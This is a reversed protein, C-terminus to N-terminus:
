AVKERSQMQSKLKELVEKKPGSMVIKNNSIVLIDDVLDLMEMKHTVLVLTHEAKVSERLAKRVNVELPRDMSATPEDLLWIKPKRLFVRTLNVLQKQGGSLGTGGEYILQQLGKPNPAIVAALLGTMRAVELIEQDGPDLMGLTLNERLTGAFLRGEQQVLGVYESLVPKAVHALDIDDLLIRGQQPKYMGSLLRLLTTKGAGIPGLVGIKQGQRITLGPVVLAVREGYQVIVKEFQFNGRVHELVVPQEQGHHDDELAWLHDLGKIAAKCHAWQVLHGPIAVVPALIRGSLISCAILAGLTIEGKSVLLAGTAVLLMYSVQQFSASLFQTHQSIIRMKTEYDRAEDTTSMWRSLMRWGGQGSKITEAGEVSEVLLGTKFNIASNADSALEDVRRRYYLGTLVSIVFFIIPIIALPKAIMFLVSAFIFVFPADVILHSTASTLFVRITEYGRMQSALGGVSNPLQDLRANLFRMYVSRALRKDVEDTLRDYLKARAKKTFLEYLIAVFIGLSLVLLTQTAGTPVVRDYVQMTYFSAALAVVNVVVGALVIELLRRKHSLVEDYILKYVPSNSASFPRSLQLSAVQYDVLDNYAVEKWESGREQYWEVVWQQRANVGRLVGWDGGSSLLLAPTLAPDPSSLWQEPKLHLRNMVHKLGDKHSYGAGVPVTEVAEQLALRDIVVNQLQALRAICTLLM